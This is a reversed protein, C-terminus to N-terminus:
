LDTTQRKYVDLHTYSVAKCWSISEWIWIPTVEGAKEKDYVKYYCVTSKMECKYIEWSKMQKRKPDWFVKKMSNNNIISKEEAVLIMDM